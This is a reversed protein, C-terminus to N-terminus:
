GGLADNSLSRIVPTLSLAIVAFLFSPNASYVQIPTLAAANIRAREENAGDACHNRGLKRNGDNRM